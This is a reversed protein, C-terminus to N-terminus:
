RSAERKPRPGHAIAASSARPGLPLGATRTLINLVPHGPQRRDDLRRHSRRNALLTVNIIQNKRQQRSACAVSLTPRGFYARGGGQGGSMGTRVSMRVAEDAAITKGCQWCTRSESPMPPVERSRM